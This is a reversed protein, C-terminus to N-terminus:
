WAFLQDNELFQFDTKRKKKGEIELRSVVLIPKLNKYLTLNDKSTVINYEREDGTQQQYQQIMSNLLVKTRFFNSQKQM